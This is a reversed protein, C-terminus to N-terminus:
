ILTTHWISHWMKILFMIKPINRINRQLNADFKLKKCDFKKLFNNKRHIKNIKECFIGLFKLVANLDCHTNLSVM